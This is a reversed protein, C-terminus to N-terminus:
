ESGSRATSKSLKTHQRTRSSVMNRNKLARSVSRSPTTVKSRNLHNCSVMNAHPPEAWAARGRGTQWAKGGPWRWVLQWTGEGSLPCGPGWRQVEQSVGKVARLLAPPGERPERLSQCGGMPPRSPAAEAQTGEPCPDSHGVTALSVGPGAASRLGFWKSQRDESVTQRASGQWSPLPAGQPARM